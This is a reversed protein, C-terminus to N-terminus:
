FVSFTRNCSAVQRRSVDGCCTRMHCTTKICNSATVQQMFEFWNSFEHSMDRCCFTARMNRGRTRCDCASPVHRQSLDTFLGTAPRGQLLLGQSFPHVTAAVQQLMLDGRTVHIHNQRSSMDSHCTVKHSLVKISVPLSSLWVHDQYITVCVSMSQCLYPCLCKRHM